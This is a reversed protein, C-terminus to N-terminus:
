PAKWGLHGLNFEASQKKILGKSIADNVVKGVDEPSDQFDNVIGVINGQALDRAAMRQKFTGDKWTNKFSERRPQLEEAKQHEEKLTRDTSGSSERKERTIKVAEQSMALSRANEVETTRVRMPWKGTLSKITIGKAANRIRKQEETTYSNWDRVPEDQKDAPTVPASTKQARAPKDRGWKQNFAEESAKRREAMVKTLHDHVRQKEQGDKIKKFADNADVMLDGAASVMESHKKDNKKDIGKEFVWNDYLFIKAKDVAAYHENVLKVARNGNERDTKSVPQKEPEKKKSATGPMAAKGGPKIWVGKWHMKGSKGKVQRQVRVLGERAKELLYDIRYSDAIAKELRELASPGAAHRDIAKKLTEAPSPM